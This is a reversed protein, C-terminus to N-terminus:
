NEEHKLYLKFLTGKDVESELKIRGGISEIQNKTIFLGIGRSDKNKHFTKYMGFIKAKHKKLDIGLGNDEISIVVYEEEIKSDLKVFSDRELSRYKIGNTLFNLVISDLYAQLGLVNHEPDINNIIEVEAENAIGAVNRISQVTTKYINIPILSEDINTNILVVENLHAITEKLNDSAMKLMSMIENENADPYDQLFLMLLMDFNGSHSRLNHSVIHAFNKLRENQDSTVALLSKIEKEARKIETIEAAVGLYGIITDKDKVPTVTLQVPFHMGDKRVYTWERTDHRGRNALATFIEFNEINENLEESLEKGRKIIEKKLHVKVPSEKGIMEEKSYGLLNEAGRNFTTITGEIDTGIISVHTSSDLIAELKALTEQLKQAAIKRPTIDTIQGIFYLPSGDDNKVVSVSMIVHVFSGNKHIFRHENHLYSKNGSIFEKLLLVNKAIDDKHTIDFVNLGLLEEKTYGVIKSLQDNVEMWATHENLIAMGIAANEFNGRFAAESIKLKQETKKINTVDQMAVVAGFVNGDEGVLQSGTAIISRNSGKTPAIIFEKNTVEGTYLAQILPIEEMKLPTKGDVHFLGYHNSFESSPIPKAPLGHWEKTANNFLTLNGERDCSVVGVEITNLITELLTQREHNLREAEKRKQIDQFLGYLRKCKGNQFESIGIARVWKLNGKATIIEVEIDYDEGKVMANKVSNELLDRHKGKPYFNLAEALIPSFDESVEHIEKTVDSWTVKNKILDVEWTGIMAARNSRDLLDQYKELLLEHEKRKTIDQHSGTMWEPKDDETWSVVKGSDKVWIWEGAKNKFRSEIEYYETNGLFHEQLLKNSRDHDDPHAFKEWTDSTIPQIEALTYGLINAWKENFITEGTQVNWEWTGINTGDIIHKLRKINEQRAKLNESGNACSTNAVIVATLINESNRIGIANCNFSFNHGTQLTYSVQLKVPHSFDKFHSKIARLVRELEQPKLINNTFLTKPKGTESDFGLSNLLKPDIYIDNPKELELFWYGNIAFDQIFNFVSEEAQIITYLSKKLVSM